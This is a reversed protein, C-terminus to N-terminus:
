NINWYTPWIKGRLFLYVIGCVFLTIAVITCIHFM